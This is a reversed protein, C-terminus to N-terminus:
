GVTTYISRQELYTGFLFVVFGTAIVLLLSM